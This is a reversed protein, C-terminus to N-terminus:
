IRKIIPIQILTHGNFLILMSLININEQILLEKILFIKKLTQIRLTIMEGITLSTTIDMIDMIMTIKTISQMMISQIINIKCDHTVAPQKAGGFKYKLLLSFRHPAIIRRSLLMISYIISILPIIDPGIDFSYDVDSCENVSFYFIKLLKLFLYM